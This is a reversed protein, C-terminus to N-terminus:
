KTPNPMPKNVIVPKSICAGDILEEGSPCTPCGAPPVVCTQPSSSGCSIIKHNPNQLCTPVNLTLQWLQSSNGATPTASDQVQVTFTTNSETTTTTTGSLVGNQSLMFGPPLSSGTQVSWKYPPTGGTATLTQSFPVGATGLSWSYLQGQQNISVPSTILVDAQVKEWMEIVDEASHFLATIQATPAPGYGGGSKPCKAVCENYGNCNSVPKGGTGSGVICPTTAYCNAVCQQNVTLPVPRPESLAQIFDPLMGYNAIGDSGFNYLHSGPSPGSPPILQYQPLSDLCGSPCGFTKAVTIPYNTAITDGGILPSMGDADSGLAVGKGGMLSLLSTYNNLWNVVPDTASPVMGLGIVGGLQQIVAVQSVPLSREDVQAGQGPGVGYFPSAGGCTVPNFGSTTKGNVLNADDCRIGTHSDMLPYKYNQAMTLATAATKQGMHAVDLLLGMEMLQYFLTKDLNRANIDGPGAGSNTGPTTPLQPLYGFAGIPFTQPALGAAGLLSASFGPVFVALAAIVADSSIVVATSKGSSLGTINSVLSSATVPVITAPPTGFTFNVNPDSVTNEPSGNIYNSLGDFLDKYAATGGFSNDALHVPIVHVIPFNQMLNQIDSFSLSDMELSLVIALKGGNIATRAEAPTKVIQMWSSNANVLSTIYTLQNFASNYDFTSSHGPFSSGGPNFKQNWANTILEDDTAAAFMLRLGGQYARQIGNIHMVQHDVTSAAPWSDFSSFGSPQHNFGAVMEDLQSIIEADTTLTIPDSTSSNHTPGIPVGAFTWQACPALDTALNQAESSTAVDMAGDHAPKGWIPGNMGSMAGFGLFSAPHTHLDAFGWVGALSVPQPLHQIPLNITTTNQGFVCAAAAALVLAANKGPLTVM